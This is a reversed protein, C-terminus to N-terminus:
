ERLSDTVVIEGDREEIVISAGSDDWEGCTASRAHIEDRGIAVIV